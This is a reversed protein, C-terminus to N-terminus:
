RWNHPLQSVSIAHTDTCRTALILSRNKSCRILM